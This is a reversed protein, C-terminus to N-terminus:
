TLSKETFTYGISDESINIASSCIKTIDNSSNYTFSVSVFFLVETSGDEKGASGNLTFCVGTGSELIFCAGGNEVYDVIEEFTKDLTVSVPEVDWNFTAHVVMVGGTSGGGGQSGNEIADAINDLAALIDDNNNGGDTGDFADVIRNLASMFDKSKSM